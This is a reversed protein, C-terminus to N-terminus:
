ANAEVREFPKIEAVVREPDIGYEALWQWTWEGVAEGANWDDVLRRAAQNALALNHAILTRLLSLTGFNGVMRGIVLAYDRAAQKDGVPSSMYYHGATHAVDGQVMTALYRALKVAVDPDNSKPYPAVQETYTLERSV